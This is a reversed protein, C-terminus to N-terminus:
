WSAEPQSAVLDVLGLNGAQLDIGLTNIFYPVRLVGIIINVLFYVINAALNRPLQAAFGRTTQDTEHDPSPMSNIQKARGAPM